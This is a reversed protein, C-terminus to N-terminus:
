HETESSFPTGPERDETNGEDMEAESSPLIVDEDDVDEGSDEPNGAQVGEDGFGQRGTAQDEASEALSPEFGPNDAESEAHSQDDTGGFRGAGPEGATDEEEPDFHSLSPAATQYSGGDDSTDQSLGAADFDEEDRPQAFKQGGAEQEATPTGYGGAEEDPNRQQNESM